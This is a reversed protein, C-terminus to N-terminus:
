FKKLRHITTKSNCTILTQFNKLNLSFLLNDFIIFFGVLQLSIPDICMNIPWNKLCLEIKPTEHGYISKKVPVSVIQRIDFNINRKKSM